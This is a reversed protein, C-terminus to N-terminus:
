NTYFVNTLLEEIEKKIAKYEEIGQDKFIEETQEIAEECQKLKVKCIMKFDNETIDKNLVLGEYKILFTLENKIVLLLRYSTLIDNIVEHTFVEKDLVPEGETHMRSGEILKGIFSKVIIDKFVLTVFIYVALAFIAGLVFDTM